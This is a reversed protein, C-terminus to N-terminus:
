EWRLTVKTEFPIRFGAINELEDKPIIKEVDGDWTISDHVTIAMVPPGLNHRNCKIIARKIIEGDSGLIPYNVAKRKRSDESEDPLKIRRGFVTEVAWGNRIGEQQVSKIWGAIIPYAKLWGDLLASCRRIDPIKAQERITQATAGYIIAYNLTKALSRTVGMLKATHIHLDSKDKDPNYLIEQMKKDGAKQALIYMHEKSNHTIVGNAVYTHITTEISILAREGIYEISEIQVEGQLRAGDINYTSMLRPPRTLSLLKAVNDVEQIKVVYAKGNSHRDITWRIGLNDLCSTTKHLLENENQVIVIYSRHYLCGEGDLVGALYGAEWTDSQQWTGSFSKIFDNTKLDKTYIWENRRTVKGKSKLNIKISKLWPHFASTTISRGDKLSLKYSPLIVEKKSLVKGIRLHRFQGDSGEEDIGILSDGVNINYLQTSTLDSKLIMTDPHLCYDGTTYCGNKPVFMFRAGPEGAKEDKTPINQINRNRSNLRGVVTDLFYETYFRNQGRLPMLYTSLFKSKKRWGIVAAALPDEVFELDEMRTSLQRKSRTFRLMTGRKALMYGVQQSSGPKEIGYGKITGEYFAVEAEYRGILGELADQDIDIGQQSLDLLIPIVAMEVLFYEGFNSRIDEQWELFLSYTLMCDEACKASLVAIPVETTDKAGYRKMVTAMGDHQRHLVSFSLDELSTFEYGKLRAAVNTDFINVRDFSKEIIPIMPIVGMDFMWNHACKVIQASALIPRIAELAKHNPEPYLQIYMAETPSFAIGIGVPLREELSVTEVDVAIAFPPHELWYKMREDANDAGFYFVQGSM